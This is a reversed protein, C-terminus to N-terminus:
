ENEHDQVAARRNKLLSLLSQLDDRYLYLFAAACVFLVALRAPLSRYLLFLGGSLGASLCASLLLHRDDYLVVRLKKRVFLFFVLLLALYSVFTTWAAAAFGYRPVFLFNLLLNLAAAAMTGLSISRTKKMHLVVNIYHAYLCQCVVGMVTPAVASLAPAYANGGLLLVAEPGLGILFLGGLCSLASILRVMRRVEDRRGEQLSRM